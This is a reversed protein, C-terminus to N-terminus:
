LKVFKQISKEEGTIVHIIYTGSPLDKINLQIAENTFNQQIRQKGSVDFVQVSVEREEEMVETFNGMTVNLIDTAPNPSLRVDLDMTLTGLVDESAVRQGSLYTYVYNSYTTTGEPCVAAVQWQVYYGPYPANLSTPPSTVNFVSWRSSSTGNTLRARLKYSSAGPQADWNFTVTSGSTSAVTNTPVGCAPPPPPATAGICFNKTESSGFEGGSALEGGNEDTLAYSGSGYSCCIGDGYEDLIKFDYCGNPLCYSKEISTGNQGNGYPGGSAVTAGNSNKITWTTESGYNDLVIKLNVESEGTSCSTPTGGGGGGGGTSGCANSSLLSERFGGSAFLARMRTKQGTTFLNMCSDDSYDMYNQVMDLSNCSYHSSACGYNAADSAPTDNVYDDYNCNGDGWIHRLNLWHGVEHTTTRGGDFPAQAAGVTGFYRYGMVVGDTSASGSGPFQAYGLLSSGLDCVWMNLYKGTDWANKGGQSTYKMKDDSGFSTTSTYTRTIGTTANGNPDVTALCFEIESDAAQSWQNTADSNTRRFDANLVDLQSQIQADSINESSTNYLVHVVVPITIVGLNDRVGNEISNVYDQTHAEIEAMKTAVNHDQQQHQHLVDMAHCTRQQAKLSFSGLSLLIILISSINIIRM